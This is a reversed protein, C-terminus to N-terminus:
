CCFDQIPFANDIHEFRGVTDFCIVDVRYNEFPEERESIVALMANSIRRQQKQTICSRASDLSKRQKVEVAILDDGRKALIDIEGYKTRIRRDIIRYGDAELKKRACSEASIGKEYTSMRWADGISVGKFKWAPKGSTVPLRSQDPRTSLSGRMAALM